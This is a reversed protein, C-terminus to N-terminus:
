EVFAEVRSGAIVRPFHDLRCRLASEAPYCFILEDDSNRIEMRDLVGDRVRQCFLDQAAEYTGNWIEDAVQGGKFKRIWLSV